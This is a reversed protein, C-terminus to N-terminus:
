LYKRAQLEIKGISENVRESFTDGTPKSWLIKRAERDFDSETVGSGPRKCDLYSEYTVQLERVLRMLGDVAQKLEKGLHVEAKLSMLSLQVLPDLVQKWRKDMAEVYGVFENMERTDAENQAPVYQIFSSRVVGIGEGVRYTELLLDSAVKYKDTGKIQRRWTNLGMAAIVIGALPVLRVLFDIMNAAGTQLDQMILMM